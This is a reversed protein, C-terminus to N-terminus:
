RRGKKNINVFVYIKFVSSNQFVIYTRRQKIDNQWMDKHQVTPKRCVHVFAPRSRACYTNKFVRRVSILCWGNLRPRSRLHGYYVCQMADQSTFTQKIKQRKLNKKNLCVYNRFITRLTPSIYIQSIKKKHKM